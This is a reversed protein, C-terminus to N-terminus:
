ILPAEVRAASARDLATNLVMAAHVLGLHTFAQPYNGLHEGTPGLEEGYLGLHNAYHLMKEFVMRAEELRGARALCEVYWFSCMSFTGEKGLLGDAAAEETRYRYVLSDDVLVRGIADLTSLWRPDRPAIFGVIPMLLCSADLTTSGLFQVFYQREENWFKHYIEHYITDRVGYWQELPAPLSRRQAIRIARDIGVWDMLRSYLFKRRGGRVEWVGEDERDWNRCLWEVAARLDTWLDAFIPEVEEDYVDMFLMLEGYIDLQVQDYAGNGIRVPRSGRYGDLHDLIEETLDLRGDIAYMIQLEGDERSSKFREHIWRAFHEAEEHFGIRVLTAATLSADRIWTFRYDWNREGGFSEPLGFTGAAILSGYKQSCMLKLTLSSRNVWEIWRGRYRSCDIWARWYALTAGFVASTEDETAARPADDDSPMELIFSATQGARLTFGSCAAGGAGVLDVSARLRLATGDAGESRFDARTGDCKLTHSARAYDFRPECRMDFPVMGRVVRVQRVLRHAFKPDPRPMFDVVEAVGTESLFRTILINTDPVYFQRIRWDTAQPRIVFRGGKADDLLAAFVTPSDFHPLCLFDISADISVLALTHNDGIIGYNEIPQYPM